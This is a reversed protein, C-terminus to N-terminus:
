QKRGELYERIVRDELYDLITEPDLKRVVETMLFDANADDVLVRAVPNGQGDLAPKVDVSDCQIELDISKM